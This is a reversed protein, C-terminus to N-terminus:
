LEDVGDRRQNRSGPKAQEAIWLARLTQLAARLRSKVTGLPLNTVNAVTAQTMGRFFMMEVVQAQPHPLKTLLLRLRQGDHWLSNESDFSSTDAPQEENLEFSGSYEQRNERRLRDLARRRAIGLLWSSLRGRHPEWLQPREWLILFVDQVVEEAHEKTGLIQHALSYIITAYEDYAYALMQQDRRKLGAILDEDSLQM